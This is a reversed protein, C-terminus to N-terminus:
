RRRFQDVKFGHEIYWLLITMNNNEGSEFKRINQISYDLDMAIDSVPINNLIRWRKCLNGVNVSRGSVPDIYNCEKM